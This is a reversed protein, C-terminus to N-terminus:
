FWEEDVIVLETQEVKVESEELDGFLEEFISMMSGEDLVWCKLLLPILLELGIDGFWFIRMIALIM